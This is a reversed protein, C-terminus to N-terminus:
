KKVGYAKLDKDIRENWQRQAQEDAGHRTEDDYQKQLSDM